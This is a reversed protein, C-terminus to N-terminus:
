GVQHATWGSDVSEVFAEVQEKGENLWGDALFDSDEVQAPKMWRAKARVLGM